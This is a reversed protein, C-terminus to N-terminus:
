REVTHWAPSILDRPSSMKEFWPNPAIVLNGENTSLAAAWWSFTSNSIIFQNGISMLSITEVSSLDNTVIEVDTNPITPLYDLVREPSDSFVLVKDVKSLDIEALAEEYYKRTLVGIGPENFYDGLRVHIVLIDLGTLSEKLKLYDATPAIPSLASFESKTKESLYRYSQFYGLLLDHEKLKRVKSFGVDTSACIVTLERFIISFYLSGLFRLSGLFYKELASPAFHARLNLGFVKSALELNRVKPTIIRVRSPLRLGAIEPNGNSDVRPKGINSILKIEGPYLDLAANVQFIQNGLGGTLIVKM